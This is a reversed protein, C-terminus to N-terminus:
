SDLCHPCPMSLDIEERCWDCEGIMTVYVVREPLAHGYYVPHTYRPKRRRRLRIM